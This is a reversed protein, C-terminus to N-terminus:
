NNYISSPLVRKGMIIEILSSLSWKKGPGPGGLKTNALDALDELSQMSVDYDKVIKTSDGAIGIGVKL